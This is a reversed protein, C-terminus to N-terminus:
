SIIVYSVYSTSEIQTKADLLRMVTSSSKKNAVANFSHVLAECPSSVNLGVQEPLFTTTDKTAQLGRSLIMYIHLQRRSDRFLVLKAIANLEVWDVQCDHNITSSSFTCLDKVHITQADLLYAIQTYGSAAKCKNVYSFFHTPL